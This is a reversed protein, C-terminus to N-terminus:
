LNHQTWRWGPGRALGVVEVRPSGECFPCGVDNLRQGGPTVTAAEFAVLSRTRVGGRGTWSLAKYEVYRLGSPRQTIRVVRVRDWDTDDPGTLRQAVEDGVTLGPVQVALVEPHREEVHKRGAGFARSTRALANGLFKDSRWTCHGCVAKHGGVPGLVSVVSFHAGWRATQDVNM